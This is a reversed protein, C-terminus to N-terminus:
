AASKCVLDRLHWLDSLEIDAAAGLQADCAAHLGEPRRVRVTEWQLATAALFDKKPNDAVYIFRGDAPKLSSQVLLFARRHPKSFADGWVDTFIVMEFYHAVRLAHIKRRQSDVPGDSILALLANGHLSALCHAADPLVSIRPWHTRYVAVMQRILSPAPDCGSELLLMNFISRRFGEEFMSWAREAFAPLGLNQEVWLGVAEFGSRVYERELYLTDDLDFVVCPQRAKMHAKEPYMAGAVSTRSM